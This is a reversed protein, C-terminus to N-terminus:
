EDSEKKKITGGLRKAVRSFLEPDSEVTLQTDFSLKYFDKRTYPRDGKARNANAFLTMFDGIALLLLEQENIKQKTLDLIRLAEFGWEYWTLNWFYESSLGLKVRAACHM